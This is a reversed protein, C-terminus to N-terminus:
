TVAPPLPRHSGLSSSSAPILATRPRMRRSYPRSLRPLAWGSVVDWARRLPREGFAAAEGSGSRAVAAAMELPPRGLWISRETVVVGPSPHSPAGGAVRLPRAALVASEPVSM